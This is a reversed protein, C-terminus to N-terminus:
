PFFLEHLYESKYATYYAAPLAYTNMISAPRSGTNGDYHSRGLVCHGMEHHILITRSTETLTAWGTENITITPSEDSQILCYGQEQASATTGFKMVLDQIEISRGQDAANQLFAKAYSDFPGFDVQPKRASCGIVLSSCIVGIVGIGWRRIKM